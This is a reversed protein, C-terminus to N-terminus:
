VGEEEYYNDIYHDFKVVSSASQKHQEPFWKVSVDYLEPLRPVDSSRDDIGECCKEAQCVAFDHACGEVQEIPRLNVCVAYVWLDNAAGPWVKISRNGGLHGSCRM